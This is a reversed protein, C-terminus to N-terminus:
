RFVSGLRWEQSHSSTREAGEKSYSEHRERARRPVGCTFGVDLRRGDKKSGRCSGGEQVRVESTHWGKKMGPLAERIM